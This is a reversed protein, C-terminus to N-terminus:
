SSLRRGHRYFSRASGPGTCARKSPATRRHRTDITVSGPLNCTWGGHVVAVFGGLWSEPDSASNDQKVAPTHHKIDARGTGIESPEFAFVTGGGEM